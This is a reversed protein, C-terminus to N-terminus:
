SFAVCVWGRERLEVWYNLVSRSAKCAKPRLDSLFHNLAKLPGM